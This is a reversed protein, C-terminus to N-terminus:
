WTESFPVLSYWHIKEQVGFSAELLKISILSINNSPKGSQSAVIDINTTIFPSEPNTFGVDAYGQDDTLRSTPLNDCTLCNIDEIVLVQCFKSEM